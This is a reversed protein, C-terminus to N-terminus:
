VKVRGFWKYRDAALEARRKLIEAILAERPADCPSCVFPNGGAGPTDNTYVWRVTDGPSFKQGCFACYFNEGSKGAGWRLKCDGATAVFPEGNTWDKTVAKADSTPTSNTM